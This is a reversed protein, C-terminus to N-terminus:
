GGKRARLWAWLGVAGVIFGLAALADLLRRRQLLQEIRGLRGEVAQLRELLAQGERPRSLELEYVARHGPDSSLVVQIRGTQSLPLSLRGQQDTRGQYLLAGTSKKLVRVQCGKCPEGASFYGEVHLQQGEQYAFVGLGHGHSPSGSSLLLALTLLLVEPRTRRLFAVSFATVLGELVALPLYALVALRAINLFAEGTLYLMLAMLVSALFLGV